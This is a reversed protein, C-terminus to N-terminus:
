FMFLSEDPLAFPDVSKCLVTALVFRLIIVVRCPIIALSKCHLTTQFEADQVMMVDLNRSGPCWTQCNVGHQAAM